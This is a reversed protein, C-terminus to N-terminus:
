MCPLPDTRELVCKVGTHGLSLTGEPSQNWVSSVDMMVWLARAPRLAALPEHSQGGFDQCLAAEDEEEEEEEEVASSRAQRHGRSSHPFRTNTDDPRTTRHGTVASVRQQTIWPHDLVCKVTDVKSLWRSLPESCSSCSCVPNLTNSLPVESITSM